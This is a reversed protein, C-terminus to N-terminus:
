HRYTGDSRLLAMDVFRSGLREGSYNLLYGGLDIEKGSLQRALEAANRISGDQVVEVLLRANLFAEFSLYSPSLGAAKIVRQYERQVPLRGEWPSPTVVAFASAGTYGLLQQAYLNNAQGAMNFVFPLAAREKWAKLLATSHAANAFLLLANTQVSPTNVLARYDPQAPPFSVRKLEIGPYNPGLKDLEGMYARGFGDDQFYVMVQKFGSSQAYSLAAKVEQAASARVAYSWPNGPGRLSAAGAIAGILPIKRDQAVKAQALCSVSGFCSLMAVAGDSFSRALATSQEANNGDDKVTLRLQVSRNSKNFDDFVAQTVAAIEKGINALVGTQPVIQLVRLNNATNQAMANCLALSLILALLNQLYKM